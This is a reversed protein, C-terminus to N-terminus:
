KRIKDLTTLVADWSVLPTTRVTSDNVLLYGVERLAANPYLGKGRFLKYSVTDHEGRRLLQLLVMPATNHLNTRTAQSITDTNRDLELTTLTYLFASMRVTDYAYEHQQTYDYLALHLSDYVQVCFSSAQAAPWKLVVTQLDSPRRITLSRETWAEPALALDHITARAFGVTRVLYYNENCALLLEGAANNGLVFKHVSEPTHLQVQLGSDRLNQAVDQPIEGSIPFRVEVRQFYDLLTQISSETAQRQTRKEYWRANNRILALTDNARILTIANLQAQPPLLELHQPSDSWNQSKYFWLGGAVFLLLLFLLLYLYIRRM